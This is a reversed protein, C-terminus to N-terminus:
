KVRVRTSRTASTVSTSTYRQSSSATARVGSKRSCVPWAGWGQAALVRNAVAIQQTRSARSPSGSGGYAHWTSPTFQLGGAFGNGTNTSWNGGSECQAIQDWVNDSAALATGGLGFSSGAVVAGAM